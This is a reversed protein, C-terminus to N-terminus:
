IVLLNTGFCIKFPSLLWRTMPQLVRQDLSEDNNRGDMRKPRSKRHNWCPNKRKANNKKQLDDNTTIEEGIRYVGYCCHLTDKRTRTKLAVPSEGKTNITRTLPLDFTLTVEDMNVIYDGDIM